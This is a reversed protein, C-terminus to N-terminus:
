GGECSAGCGSWWFLSFHDISLAVAVVLSLRWVVICRDLWVWGTKGGCFFWSVGLTGLLWWAAPGVLMRM